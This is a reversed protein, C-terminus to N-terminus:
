DTDAKMERRLTKRERIRQKVEDFCMDNNGPKEHLGSEGAGGSKDRWHKRLMVYFLASGGAAYLVVGINAPSFISVLILAVIAVVTFLALVAVQPSFGKFHKRM